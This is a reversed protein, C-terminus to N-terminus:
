YVHNKGSKPLDVLPPLKFFNFPIRIQGTETPYGALYQVAVVSGKDVLFPLHPLRM